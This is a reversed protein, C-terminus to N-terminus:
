MMYLHALDRNKKCIKLNKTLSQKVCIVPDTQQKVLKNCGMTM